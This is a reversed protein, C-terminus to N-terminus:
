FKISLSRRIQLPRMALLIESDEAAVPRVVVVDVAAEEDAESDVAEADVAAAVVESAVAAVEGAM